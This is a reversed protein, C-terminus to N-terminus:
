YEVQLYSLTSSTNAIAKWRLDNGPIISTTAGPIALQWFSTDYAKSGTEEFAYHAVLGNTVTGNTALISVSASDLPTNFIKLEDIMGLFGGGGNGDHGIKASTTSTGGAATGTVRQYFTGNIYYDVAFDTGMVAALHYTTGPVIPSGTCTYDKIGFTTFLPRCSATDVPTFGFGWGNTSRNGIFRSSTTTNAKFFLSVAFGSTFNFNTSDLEIFSQNGGTFYVGNGYAGTTTTVNYKTGTLFDSYSEDYAINSITTGTGETCPAWLTIGPVDGGSYVHGLEADSLARNYLRIDRFIGSPYGNGNPTPGTTGGHGIEVSHTNAILNGGTGSTSSKNLVGNKYIKMITSVHDYSFAWHAIEGSTQSAVSNLRRTTGSTGISFNHTGNQELVDDWGTTTGGQSGKKAFVRWNNNADTDPNETMKFWTAFTMSRSDLKSSDSFGIWSTYAGGSPNLAISTTGGIDSWASSTSFITGSTAQPLTSSQGQATLFFDLNGSSTASLIASSITEENLYIATSQAVQGLSFTVQNGGTWTATSSSDKFRTGAM